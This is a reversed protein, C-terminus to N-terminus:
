DAGRKRKVNQSQGYRAREKRNAPRMSIISLAETGLLKFIVAFGVGDLEGTAKFRGDRVPEIIAAEFFALTLWDFDLEREALTKLRKREDRVIRM